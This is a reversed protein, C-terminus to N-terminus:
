ASTCNLSAQSHKTRGLARPLAKALTNTLNTIISEMRGRVCSRKDRVGHKKSQHLLTMENEKSCADAYAGTDVRGSIRHRCRGVACIHSCSSIFDLSLAVTRADFNLCARTPAVSGPAHSRYRDSGCYHMAQKVEDTRASADYSVESMYIRCM